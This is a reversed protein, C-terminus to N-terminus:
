QWKPHVPVVALLDKRSPLRETRLSCRSRLWPSLSRPSCSSSYSESYPPVKLADHEPGRDLEHYGVTSLWAGRELRLPLWTFDGGVPRSDLDGCSDRGLECVEAKRVAAGAWLERREAGAGDGCPQTAQRAAESGSREDTRSRVNLHTFLRRLRACELVASTAQAYWKAVSRSRKLSHSTASTRIPHPVWSRRSTMGLTSISLVRQPNCIQVLCQLSPM